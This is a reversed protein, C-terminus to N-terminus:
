PRHAVTDQPALASWAAHLERWPTDDLLRALGRTLPLEISGSAALALVLSLDKRCIENNSEFLKDDLAYRGYLAKRSAWNGTAINRGSGQEMTAALSDLDLGMRVGLAMTEATLLWNAVGILNNLIKTKMGAGLAGCLTVRSGILDLVPRVRAFDDSSGGVMVSLKGSTAGDIGGSIPADLLSANKAALPGVLAQLTDPHVTSMVVVCPPAAPDVAALLGDPGLLVAQVQADSAVLVFVLEAGACAAPSPALRARQAFATAAAPRADCVTLACGAEILRHAIPAGM